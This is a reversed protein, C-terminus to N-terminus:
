RPGRMSPGKVESLFGIERLRDLLREDYRRGLDDPTLNGVLVTRRGRGMRDDTIRLLAQRAADLDRAGATGLEDVILTACSVAAAWERDYRAFMSWRALASERVYVLPGRSIRTLAAHAAAVTKGTGPTGLLVLVSRPGGLWGSTVQLARTSALTGDVLATSMADTLPVGADLLLKRRRNRAARAELDRAQELTREYAALADPTAVARRARALAAAVAADITDTEDTESM